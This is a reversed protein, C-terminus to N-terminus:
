SPNPNHLIFCALMVLIDKLPNLKLRCDLYLSLTRYINYDSVDFSLTMFLPLLLKSTHM